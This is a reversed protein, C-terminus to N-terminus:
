KNLEEKLREQERLSKALLAKARATRNRETLIEDWLKETYTEKRRAAFYWGLWTGVNLLILIKVIM